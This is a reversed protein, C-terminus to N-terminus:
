RTSSGCSRRTRSATTPRSTPRSTKSSARRQEQAVAEAELVQARAGFAESVRALRRIELLIDDRSAVALAVPHRTALRLEDIGHLNSPDAVAVRLVDDDLAYPIAVVRELVHLPLVKAAERDVGLLALDVLPLGHRSARLRAVGDSSAINEEVLAGALSGTQVARGRALALKDAPVLRTAALLDVVLEVAENVSAASTLRAPRPGAGRLQPLELDRESMPRPHNRGDRAIGRVLYRCPPVGAKAGRGASAVAPRAGLVRRLLPHGAFLAVVAGLALFPGFPIGMKRAASGHRAFLVLAPVLAAVMGVFLAIPVTRGLAAGLLLALKVDGMGMGKPYALAAAFLFGSAGAAGIAWEPSPHLATQAALM